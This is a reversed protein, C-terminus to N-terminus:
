FNGGNMILCDEIYQQELKEQVLARQTVDPIEDMPADMVSRKLAQDECVRKIVQPTKIFQFFLFVGLAAIVVWFISIKKSTM